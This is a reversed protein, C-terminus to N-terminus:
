ALAQSLYIEPVLHRHCTFRLCWTGPRDPVIVTWAAILLSRRLESKLSRFADIFQIADDVSLIRYCQRSM